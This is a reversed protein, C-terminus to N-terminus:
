SVTTLGDFPSTLKMVSWKFFAFLKHVTCLLSMYQIIDRFWPRFILLHCWKHDTFNDLMDLSTSCAFLRHFGAFLESVTACLALKLLGSIPTSIQSEFANINEVLPSGIAVSKFKLSYSPFPWLYAVSLFLGSICLRPRPTSLIIKEAPPAEKGSLVLLAVYLNSM